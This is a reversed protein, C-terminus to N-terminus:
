VGVITWSLTRALVKIGPPAQIVQSFVRVSEAIMCGGSNIDVDNGDPM